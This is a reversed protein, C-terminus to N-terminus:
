WGPAAEAGMRQEKREKLSLHHVVDCEVLYSLGEMWAGSGMGKEQKRIEESERHGEKEKRIHATEQPFLYMTAVDSPNM